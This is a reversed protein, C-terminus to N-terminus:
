RCIPASDSVNRDDDNYYNDRLVLVLMKHTADLSRTPTPDCTCPPTRAFQAPIWTSLGHTDPPIAPAIHTGEARVEHTHQTSATPYGTNQGNRAGCPANRPMNAQASHKRLAAARLGMCRVAVQAGDGHLLDREASRHVDAFHLSLQQQTPELGLCLCRRRWSNIHHRDLGFHVVKRVAHAPRSRVPVLLLPFRLLYPHWSVGGRWGCACGCACTVSLDADAEAKPNSLPQGVQICM